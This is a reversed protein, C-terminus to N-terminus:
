GGGCGVGVGVGGGGGWGEEKGQEGVDGNDDEDNPMGLTMHGLARYSRDNEQTLM